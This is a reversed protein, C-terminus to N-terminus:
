RKEAGVVDYGFIRWEGEQPTLYLSGRVRLHDELDGHTFYDLVFHATVGHPQGKPALVDLRVRRNGVVVNEISGEIEKNSLLALDDLADERAGKTFGAFAPTYDTRPFEGLFAGEFWGDVAENVSAKLEARVPHDMHGSVRWFTTNIPEQTSDSASSAPGQGEPQDANEDGDTCAVAAVLVVTLAAWRAATRRARGVRRTM